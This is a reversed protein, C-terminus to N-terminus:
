EKSAKEFRKNFSELISSKEGLKNYVSILNATEHVIVDEESYKGEEIGKKVQPHAKELYQGLHKGLFAFEIMDLKVTVTTNAIDEKIKSAENM